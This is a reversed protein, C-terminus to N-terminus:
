YSRLYIVWVSLGNSVVEVNLTPGIFRVRLLSTSSNRVDNKTFLDRQVHRSFCALKKCKLIARHMSKM